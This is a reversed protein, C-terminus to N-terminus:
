GKMEMEVEVAEVKGDEEKGVRLGQEEKVMGRLVGCMRRRRGLCEGVESRREVVVENHSQFLVLLLFGELIMTPTNCLLQGTESWRLGTAIAILVVVVVVSAIVAVPHACIRTMWNSFRAALSLKHRKKGQEGKEEEDNDHSLSSPLHLLSMIKEDEERLTSLHEAVINSQRFYVNRLVFGDVFGILGTYTGIVLWWNDSWHLTPGLAIWIAFVITSLVVGVGSGVVHAYIDISREMKSAKPPSIIWSENPAMDGTLDRFLFELEANEKKIRELTLRLSDAHRRRVNQLFMSTFTLEVAVATNIYLQWLNDFQFMAGLALWIIIGLTFTILAPLSGTATAVYDCVKDFWNVKEQDDTSKERGGRTKLLEQQKESSLSLSKIM